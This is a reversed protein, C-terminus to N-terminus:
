GIWEESRDKYGFRKDSNNYAEEKIIFYENVMGGCLKISFEDLVLGM